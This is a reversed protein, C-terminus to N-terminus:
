GPQEDYKDLFLLPFKGHGGSQHAEKSMRWRLVIEPPKWSYKVPCISLTGM